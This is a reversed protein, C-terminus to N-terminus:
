AQIAAVGRRLLDKVVAAVEMPTVQMRSMVEVPTLHQECLLRAIPLWPVPGVTIYLRYLDDHVALAKARALQEERGRKQEEQILPVIKTLIAETSQGLFGEEPPRMGASLTGECRKSTLFSGLARDSGLSNTGMRATAQVLRGKVYSLRWSGWDDAADLQGNFQVEALQRLVWQPGLVGFSLSVSAEGTAVRRFRRRPALLEQIQTELQTLRLTKPFYAQAGAHLIRLSERYDDQASFLAIPTEHMSFDERVARLLGWGDLRPMNLDAIVLDFRAAALKMMAEIGDGAVTVPYGRRAFFDYLMKVVTPDDDVVLLRTSAAEPQPELIRPASSRPEPVPAQAVGSPPNGQLPQPASAARMSGSTPNGELPPPAIAARMSGSAPNGELPPPAIAARMSGSTPNGELPPPAIAARM